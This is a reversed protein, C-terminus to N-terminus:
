STMIKMAQTYSTLTNFKLGDQIQIKLSESNYMDKTHLWRVFFACRNLFMNNKCLEFKEILGDEECIIGQVTEVFTNNQEFM